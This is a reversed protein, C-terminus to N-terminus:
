SAGRLGELELTSYWDGGHTDGSHEVDRLRFQGSHAESQLIVKGGPRLVPNMLIKVKLLKPRGPMPPSAYEPSGVLGSDPGIVWLEATTAGKAVIVVNDDYVTYECGVEDLVGRFEDALNGYLSKGNKWAKSGAAATVARASGNGLKGLGGAMGKIADALSTGAGFTKNVRANNQANGGNSGEFKTIWDSGEHKHNIQIANIVGALKTDAGYGCVVGVRIGKGLCQARSDPALNYVSVEGLNPAYIFPYKLKFKVRLDNSDKNVTISPRTPGRPVHEGPRYNAEIVVACRRDYQPAGIIAPGTPVLVTGSFASSVLAPSVTM